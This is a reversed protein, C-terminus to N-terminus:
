QVEPPDLRLRYALVTETPGVQFDYEPMRVFGMREYMEKAVAMHASTHLGLETAGVECARHICANLLARGIGGGRASPDVALLRVEPWTAKDVLGGYADAAPPFLLVSGVLVGAREAVFCEVPKEWSLAANLAQQFGRWMPPPMLNAYEAYARLTIDRVAPRELETAVRIILEQSDIMRQAQEKGTASDPRCAAEGSCDPESEFPVQSTHTMIRGTVSLRGLYSRMMAATKRWDM